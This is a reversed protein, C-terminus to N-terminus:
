DNFLEMYQKSLVNFNREQVLFKHGSEGMKSLESESKDAYRLLCDAFEKPSEASVFEGCHAENIMSPVGSYMCVIPKKAYMYDIFKNLSIGYKYIPEGRVSAILVNSKSLISQVQTKEVRPAFTVNSLGQAQNMLNDKEAGTGMLVFHVNENESEILKAAEIVYELANAVGLTGAYTVIFKGEPLYSNVYQATVEKQEIDYFKLDVGQPIFHIKDSKQAGEEVHMSLGPMTGVIQDAYKYGFKEIMRMFIVLPHRISIGKLDVLSQPWIDRVEFIFQSKFFCKFFSGSLVSFLSLSSAIVIDPKRFKKRFPLSMVYFEFLLWGAIRRISSPNSYKITNVWVVDYNDNEEELYRENFQPLNPYLHSSNSTILKVEYGNKAFEKCFSSQRTNAGYKQTNAYKSVYWIIKKM